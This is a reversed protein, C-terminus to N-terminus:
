PNTLFEEDVRGKMEERVQDLDRHYKNRFPVIIDDLFKRVSAEDQLAKDQLYYEAISSNGELQALKLKLQLIQPILHANSSHCKQELFAQYRLAEKPDRCNRFFWNQDAVSSTIEDSSGKRM